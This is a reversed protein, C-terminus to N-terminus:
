KLLQNVSVLFRVFGLVTINKIPLLASKSLVRSTVYSSAFCNASSFPKINTSALAIVHTNVYENDILASSPCSAQLFNHIVVMFIQLLVKSFNDPYICKPRQNWLRLTRNSFSIILTLRTSYRSNFRTLKLALTM